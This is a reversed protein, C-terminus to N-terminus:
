MLSRRKAKAMMVVVAQAPNQKKKKKVSQNHAQRLNRDHLQQHPHLGLWSNCM